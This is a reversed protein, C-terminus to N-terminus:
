HHFYLLYKESLFERNWKLLMKSLHVLKVKRGVLLWGCCEWRWEGSGWQGTLVPLLWSLVALLNFAVVKVLTVWIKQLIIITKSIMRFVERWYETKKEEFSLSLYSLCLSSNRNFSISCDVKELGLRMAKTNKGWSGLTNQSFKSLRLSRLVRALFSHQTEIFM